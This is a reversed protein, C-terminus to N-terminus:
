AFDIGHRKLRNKIDELCDEAFKQTYETQKRPIADMQSGVVIIKPKNNTQAYVMSLYILYQQIVEEKTLSNSGGSQRNNTSNVWNKLDVVFVFVGYTATDKLFLRHMMLYQKQGGYDTINLNLTIDSGDSDTTNFKAELFEMGYTQEIPHKEWASDQMIKGLVTKGANGLGIINVPLCFLEKLKM